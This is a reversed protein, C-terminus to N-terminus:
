RAPLARASGFRARTWPTNITSPISRSGSSDTKREVLSLVRARKRKGGADHRRGPVACERRDCHWLRAGHRGRRPRQPFHYLFTYSDFPRDSMWDVAAHTIKRLSDLLKGTDYDSASTHVAIHYTAGDQQFDYTRFVGVEVPSDVLEDYSHAVGVAQEVNGAPAEGFINLDRLSWNAPVDLLQVSMSRSRTSPSYMLVMAWNFFGHDVSLQSGFPGPADLHIDYEAVVCPGAASVRWESTKEKVVPLRRGSADTARLDEVNAAFDRVQYLANWVPMDLVVDGTAQTFRISVHARHNANDALSVFYETPQPKANVPSTCTVPTRASVFSASAIVIALAAFNPKSFIKM